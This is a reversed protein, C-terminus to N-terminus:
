KGENPPASSVPAIKVTDDSRQLLSRQSEQMVQKERELSQRMTTKQGSKKGQSAAEKIMKQLKIEEEAQQKLLRLYEDENLQEDREDEYDIFNQYKNKRGRKKSKSHHSRESDLHEQGM